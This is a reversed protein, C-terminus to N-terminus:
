PKPKPPASLIIPPVILGRRLQHPPISPPSLSQPILPVMPTKPPLYTSTAGLDHGCIPAPKSVRGLSGFWPREFKDADKVESVALITRGAAFFFFFAATISVSVHYAKCWGRIPSVWPTGDEGVMGQIPLVCVSLAGLGLGNALVVTLITRLDEVSWTCSAKRASM